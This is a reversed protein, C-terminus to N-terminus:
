LYFFTTRIDDIKRAPLLELIIITLDNVKSYSKSFEKTNNEDITLQLIKYAQRFSKLHGELLTKRNELSINEVDM